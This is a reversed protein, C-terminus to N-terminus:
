IVGQENERHLYTALPYASSVSIDTQTGRGVCIPVNARVVDELSNYQNPPRNETVLFSALNATYSASIVLGFFAVSFALLHAPVTRPEFGFHTTLTIAVLFTAEIPDTEIKRKEAEPNLKELFYYVAGTVVCTVLLMYWVYDDFPTLWAWADFTTSEEQEKTVMIISADYWPETNAIGKTLRELSAMWWDLSVDYTEATWEQLDTWTKGEPPSGSVAFSDRWTCGARACLEDRLVPMIGPYVKNIAGTEEDQL